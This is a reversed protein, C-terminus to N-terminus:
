SDSLLARANEYAAANTVEGSLMKAIEEVREDNNLQRIGTETETETETKYVLYHNQGRSAIQPLHTINIVQMYKSMQLLISGMKSAIEGSIGTDIEDFIIAPLAKSRAVVTKIALMLRSLEGGSAVKNIEEINSGKNAAFLFFVEDTGDPGYSETKNLEIKFTANPMGLQKLYTCIESAIPEIQEKRSNHLEQAAEAVKENETKIAKELRLLEEDFSASDQLKSDFEDRIIILEEVSSVRHKQQLSYIVNLRENLYGLRKPDHEITEALRECEDAIDRMEIYQSEIREHLEAAQPMFGSLKDMTQKAESIQALANLEGGDLLRYVHGLGAQIEESHNLLEQEKELDEQEGSQLNIENLQKFQFEYYDFDAKLQQAKTTIEDFQKELNKLNRYLLVYNDILKQHGCYWDIVNLQFKRKGLELNSHQSHIDILQLGLERMVQLQVPTDNVFARTKGSPAIERRLIVPLEYDLDNVDFLRKLEPKEAVAFKGEVVCKGKNDKLVTTDARQGLILGLAGMIISKGAGTEGTLVCFGSSFAIDLHKIIAYNKITLNSLM